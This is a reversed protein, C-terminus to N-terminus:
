EDVPKKNEKTGSKKKKRAKREALEKQQKKKRLYTMLGFIIGILLLVAGVILAILQWNLGKEQVLGVDRENFKDADEQTIEFEETWAWKQDGSTVLINAVYTGSVMREGNMSVPFQIFSNPAMRMATQKREYLVADNGKANIQTEVTMDNLFAPIINSFDIFITNRYNNQGAFVSNLNLDPSLEEESEQLLLGIVYAYQNIIRSGGEESVNDDQDAKMLQIGGAIVGETSTEPMKIKLDLTKTEGAELDISEPGSVLDEFDFKLSADNEIDSDGYEIVGNQNTVAGNLGVNITLKETSPNTVTIKVTQEQGKSMKLKYYGINEEMQNDPFNLSYTFGTAGALDEDAHALNTFLINPLLMVVTLPIIGIVKIIKKM